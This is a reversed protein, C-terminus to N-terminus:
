LNTTTKHALETGDLEALVTLRWLGSPLAGTAAHWAGRGDAELSLERDAAANDPKYLRVRVTELAPVADAADHVALRIRGQELRCDWRYPAGAKLRATMEVYASEQEYYDASTLEYDEDWIMYLAGFHFVAVGALLAIIIYKWYNKM